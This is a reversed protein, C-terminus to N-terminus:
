RLIQAKIAWRSLGTLAILSAFIFLSFIAGGVGMMEFAPTLGYIYITNVIFLGLSLAFLLFAIKVRFLLALSAFFASFVASAWIAVYAAPFGTFYAIQDATFQELYAPSTKTMVYDFVGGFNWIVALVAVIWFWIPTKRGANLAQDAM